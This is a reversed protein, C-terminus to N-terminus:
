KIEIKALNWAEIFSKISQYRNKRNLSTAKKAVNYLSQPGNWNIISRERNEGMFEFLTAGLTFINTIEDIESGIEYEEPALFRSSGWLKGIKNIYPRKHFYDVDCITVIKQNFDYILSGDYFDIGVYGKEIVHNFFYFITEFAVIKEEVSLNKM